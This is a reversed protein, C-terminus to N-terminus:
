YWRDQTEQKVLHEICLVACGDFEDCAVYQGSGDINQVASRCGVSVLDAHDKNTLALTSPASIRLLM